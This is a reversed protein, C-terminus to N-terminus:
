TPASPERRLWSRRRPAAADLVPTVSSSSSRMEPGTRARCRRPARRGLRRERDEGLDEGDRAPRAPPESRSTSARPNVGLGDDPLFYFGAQLASRRGRLIAGHQQALDLVRLRRGDGLREREERRVVARAREGAALRQDVDHLRAGGRGVHEDVQVPELLQLPMSSAPSPVSVIPAIVVYVSSM